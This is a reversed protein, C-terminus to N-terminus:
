WWEPIQLIRFKILKEHVFRYFQKLPCPINNTNVPTLLTSNGKNQGRNRVNKYYVHVVKVVSSFFSIEKKGM